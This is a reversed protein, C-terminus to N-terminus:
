IVGFVVLAPLAASDNGAVEGPLGPQGQRSPRMGWLVLLAILVLAAVAAILWGRRNRDRQPPIGPQM